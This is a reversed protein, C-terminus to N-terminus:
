IWKRFKFYFFLVLAIALSVFHIIHSDYRGEVFVSTTFIDPIIQLPLAIFTFLTLFRIAENTKYALLSDNTKKLEVITERLNELIEWLKYYESTLTDAYSAFSSGFMKESAAEFSVLISKHFRTAERFDLIKHSIESLDEVIQGNNGSFIIDEISKTHSRLSQLEIRMDNYLNKMLYYFLFGPHEGMANSEVITNVEFQKAFNHLPDTLEYHATILFNKGIVFDIEQQDSGFRSTNMTPFHMVLYLMDKYEEVKPHLTPELLSEAVIPHLNFESILSEVEAYTPRNLDVWVLDKHTRKALM